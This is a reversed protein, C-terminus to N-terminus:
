YRRSKTRRCRPKRNGPRTDPGQRKEPIRDGALWGDGAHDVRALTNGSMAGFEQTVIMPLPRAEVVSLHFLEITLPASGVLRSPTLTLDAARGGVDIVDTRSLDIHDRGM